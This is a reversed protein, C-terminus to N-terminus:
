AYSERTMVEVVKVRGEFLIEETAPDEVIGLWYQRAKLIVEELPEVETLLFSESAKHIRGQVNARLVQYEDSIGMRNIWYKVGELTPILWICRQRSPLHPFEKKRIDEWVLERIYNVLHKAVDHAIRAAAPSRVEDKAVADSFRVGGVAIETGDNQAVPYTINESEYFRFFPNSKGGIDFEHGGTMQTYPSWHVNRNIFYFDRTTDAVAM